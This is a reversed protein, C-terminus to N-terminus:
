SAISMFVADSSEPESESTGTVTWRLMTAGFNGRPVTLVTTLVVINLPKVSDPDDPM